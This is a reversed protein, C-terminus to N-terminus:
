KVRKNIRRASEHLCYEDGADVSEFDLEGPECDVASWSAGCDKCLVWWQGHEFTVDLHGHKPQLKRIASSMVMREVAVTNTETLLKRKMGPEM